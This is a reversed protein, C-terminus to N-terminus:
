LSINNVYPVEVGDMEQKNHMRFYSFIVFPYSFQM